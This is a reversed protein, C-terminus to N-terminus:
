GLYVFKNVSCIEVPELGKTLNKPVPQPNRKNLAPPVAQPHKEIRELMRLRLSRALQSRLRCDSVHLLRVQLSFCSCDFKEVFPSWFAVCSEAVVM